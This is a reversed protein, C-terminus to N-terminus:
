SSTTNQRTFVYSSDDAGFAENTLSTLLTWGSESYKNVLKEVVCARNGISARNWSTGGNWNYGNTYTLYREWSCSTFIDDEALGETKMVDVFSSDAFYYSPGCSSSCYLCGECINPEWVIVKYEISPQGVPPSSAVPPSGTTGARIGDDIRALFVCNIILLLGTAVTAVRTFLDVGRPHIVRGIPPSFVASLVNPTNRRGAYTANPPLFGASPSPANQHGAYTANPPLFRVSPNPSVVAARTRDERAATSPEGSDINSGREVDVEDSADPTHPM